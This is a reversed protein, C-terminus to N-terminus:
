GYQRRFVRAPDLEVIDAEKPALAIVGFHPRIPVRVNKLVGHNEQVLSHDVPVGPYDIIKHVVGFPDKQPVWRYNYVAKAWNKEGSADLEYITVVERPKPETLLDHYQFGWWAAANSGFAKGKYDPNFSGRPTVDIIRVELIDGPEAGRVAVPGTCIHVGFGEGAGRGFISADMPGAGRRNVNKKDQTWLFVSEAGPDGKIMREYDDYSHHTLAEITVYDGSDIEVLPKLSKSFYGWHVTKDTAPVFYHNKRGEGAAAVPPTQSQAEASGILGPAAVAGGGAILAGKLFRRRDDDIDPSPRLSAIGDRTFGPLDNKNSM